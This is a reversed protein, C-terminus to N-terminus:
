VTDGEAEAEEAFMERYAAEAGPEFGGEQAIRLAEKFSMGAKMADPCPLGYHEIFIFEGTDPFFEYYQLYLHPHHEALFRLRRRRHPKVRAVELVFKAMNSVEADEHECMEEVHAINRESINRQELYRSVSEIARWRRRAPMANVCDHCIGKARWEGKFYSICRTKNCVKCRLRPKKKQKKRKAM